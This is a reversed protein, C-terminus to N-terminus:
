PKGRTAGPNPATEVPEGTPVKGHRRAVSVPSLVTVDLSTGEPRTTLLGSVEIADRRAALELYLSVDDLDAGIWRAHSASLKYVPTPDISRTVKGTEVRYALLSWTRLGDQEAHTVIALEDRGEAVRLPAAFVVESSVKFSSIVRESDHPRIVIESGTVEVREGAGTLCTGIATKTSKPRVCRESALPTPPAAPPASANASAPEPILTIALVRDFAILIRAGPMQAPAVVRPDLARDPDAADGGLLRLVEDKTSGVHVGSETRAVKPGVVSVATAVGGPEGSIVVNGDEARILSRHVLGPIELVVVRPGSPLQQMLDSLREGLRYPGVGEARIAYPPLPRVAGVPPEIIRREVPPDRPPQRPPSSDSCSALVAIAVILRSTM